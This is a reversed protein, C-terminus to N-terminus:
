QTRAKFEPQHLPLSKIGEKAEQIMMGMVKTTGNERDMIMTEDAAGVVMGTVIATETVTETEVM